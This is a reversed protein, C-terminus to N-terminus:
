ANLADKLGKQATFKVVNKAPVDIEAGTQPNRGKSAPKHSPTFKGFGTVTVEKGDALASQLADFVADVRERAEKAGVDGAARVADALGQTNMKEPAAGSKTTASKAM